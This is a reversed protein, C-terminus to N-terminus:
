QAARSRNGGDVAARVVQALAGLCVRAKRGTVGLTEDLGERVEVAVHCSGDSREATLGFGPGEVVVKGGYLVARAPDVEDM